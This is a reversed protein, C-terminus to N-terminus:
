IGEPDSGWVIWNGILGRGLIANQGHGFSVPDVNFGLRNVFTTEESGGGWFRIKATVSLFLTLTAGLPQCIYKRLLTLSFIYCQCFM